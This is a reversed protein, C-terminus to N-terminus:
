LMRRSVWGSRGSVGSAAEAPSWVAARTPSPTARWARVKVTLGPDSDLTASSSAPYSDGLACTSSVVRSRRVDSNM